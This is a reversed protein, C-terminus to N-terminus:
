PVAKEVRDERLFAHRKGTEGWYWEETNNPRDIVKRTPVGWSMELARASMGPAADKHLVRERVDAPLAALAPRPDDATLYRELEARVDEVSRVDRPLVIVYPRPDGEVRLYVWPHYRPTVLVRQAVVFPTPFELAQVRVPTGPPLVREAPPPAIPTGNPKDVLDVEAPPRDSLFVKETDDWLPSAFCAVRLYRAAGGALEREARVQEPEPIRLDPSACAISLLPAALLALLAHRM